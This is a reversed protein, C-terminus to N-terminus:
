PKMPHKLIWLYEYSQKFLGYLFTVNQCKYTFFRTPTPNEDGPHPAATPNQPATTEKQSPTTQSPFPHNFATSLTSQTGLTPRQLRSQQIVGLAAPGTVALLVVHDCQAEAHAPLDALVM